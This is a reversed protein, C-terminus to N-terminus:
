RLALVTALGIARLSELFREVLDKDSEASDTGDQDQAQLLAVARDLENRTAEEAVGVHLVEEKWIMTHLDRIKHIDRQGEDMCRKIWRRELYRLLNSIYVALRDLMNFHAVYEGILRRAGDVGVSNEPTFLRARIDVCHTKIADRLGIYLEATAWNEPRGRQPSNLNYTLGPTRSENSGECYDVTASTIDLYVSTTIKPPGDHFPSTRGALYIATITANLWALTAALDATKDGTKPPRSPQQLPQIAAPPPQPQSM